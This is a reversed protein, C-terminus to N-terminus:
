TGTVAAQLEEIAAVQKALELTTLSSSENALAIWMDRLIKLANKERPDSTVHFARECDEARKLLDAQGPIGV